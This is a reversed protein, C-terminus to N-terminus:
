DIVLYKKKKKSYPNKLDETKRSDYDDLFNYQTDDRHYGIVTRLNINRVSNFINTEIVDSTCRFHHGLAIKNCGM